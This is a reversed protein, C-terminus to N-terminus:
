AASVPLPEVPVIRSEDSSQVIALSVELAALGDRVTSEPRGGSRICDVYNRDAARFDWTLSGPHPHPPSAPLPPLENDPKLMQESEMRQTRLRLGGSGSVVTGRSGIIGSHGSQITSAWSAHLVGAAGNQFQVLAAMTNDFDPLDPLSRSVRGSVATIPGVIWRFLDINHSLSEITFGCAFRPDHRWSEHSPDPLISHSWISLVDGLEGSTVLDRMRRAQWTFRQSFNVVAIVGARDVAETIARGDDLTTALPKDMVLARGAGAADVVPERRVAPPTCIWIAEARDIVAQHNDFAEAGLPDSLTRAREILPDCIAVVRVDEMERLALLHSKAVAGAGIIGIQLM